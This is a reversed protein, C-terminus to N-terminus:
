IVRFVHDAQSATAAVLRANVEDTGLAWERAADLDKGYSMHRAILREQRVEDDPVLFWAEDILPHV